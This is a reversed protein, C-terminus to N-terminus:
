TVIDGLLSLVDAMSPRIAKPAILGDVSGGVASNWCSIMKWWHARGEEDEYDIHGVVAEAFLGGRREVSAVVWVFGLCDVAAVRWATVQV